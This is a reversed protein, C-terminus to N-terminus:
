PSWQLVSSRAQVHGAIHMTQGGLVLIGKAEFLSLHSLGEERWM